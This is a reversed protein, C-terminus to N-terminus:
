ATSRTCPLFRAGPTSGPAARIVALRYPHGRTSGALRPPSGFPDTEWRIASPSGTFLKFDSWLAGFTSPRHDFTYVPDDMQM